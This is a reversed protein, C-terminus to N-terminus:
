ATAEHIAKKSSDWANGTDQKIGSWTKSCGIMILVFTMLLVLTTIKNM